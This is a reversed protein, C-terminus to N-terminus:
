ACGGDFIWDGEGAFRGLVVPNFRGGARACVADAAAKAEIGDSPSFGPRFVTISRGSVKQAGGAALTIGPPGARVEGLYDRTGVTVTTPALTVAARTGKAVPAVCGQLAALTLVAAVGRM